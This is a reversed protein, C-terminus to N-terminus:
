LSLGAVEVQPHQSVFERVRQGLEVFQFESSLSELDIANEMEIETVVGQIAV